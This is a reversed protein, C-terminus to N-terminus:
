ENRLGARGRVFVSKDRGTGFDISDAGGLESFRGRERRRGQYVLDEITAEISAIDGSNTVVGESHPM